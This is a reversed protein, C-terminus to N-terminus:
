GQLAQFFNSTSGTPLGLRSLYNREVPLLSEQINSLQGSEDMLNRKLMQLYYNKEEDGIGGGFAGETALYSRQQMPNLTAFQQGGVDKSFLGFPKVPEEPREPTFPKEIPGLIGNDPITTAAPAAEQPPKSTPTFGTMAAGAALSLGGTAPAALAGLIIPLPNAKAKKWFKGWGSFLYEPQGTNPNINDWGSGVVHTKYDGGMDAMVKKFKTLFEPNELVVDRPIVVDGPTVHAVM